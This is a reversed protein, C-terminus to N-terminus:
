AGWLVYGRVPGQRIVDPAKIRMQYCEDHCVVCYKESVMIGPLTNERSLLGAYRERAPTRM